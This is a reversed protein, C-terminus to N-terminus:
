RTRGRRVIHRRVKALIEEVIEQVAEQGAETTSGPVPPVDGSMSGIHVDGEESRHGARQKMGFETM